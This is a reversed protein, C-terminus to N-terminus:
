RRTEADRWRVRLFGGSGGSGVVISACLSRLRSRDDLDRRAAVGLDARRCREDEAVHQAEVALEAARFAVAAHAQLLPTSRKKPGRMCYLVSSPVPKKSCGVNEQRARDLRAAAGFADLEEALVLEAEKARVVRGATGALVVPHQAGPARARSRSLHLGRWSGAGASRRRASGRRARPWTGARSCAACRGAQAKSSAFCGARSRPRPATSSLMAGSDVVRERRDVM